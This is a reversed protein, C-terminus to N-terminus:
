QPKEKEQIVVQIKAQLGYIGLIKNAKECTEDVMARVKDGIQDSLRDAEEESLKTVDVSRKRELIDSM